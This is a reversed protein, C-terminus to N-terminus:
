QRLSNRLALADRLRYARISDNPDVDVPFDIRLVALSSANERVHEFVDPITLYDAWRVGGTTGCTAAEVRHLSRRLGVGRTCWTVQVTSATCFNPPTGTATSAPMTLTVSSSVGTPTIRCAQHVEARLRELALRAEEQARVRETLDVESRMASVFLTTSMGVVTGLIALVTLLETLGFGREDGTLARIRQRLTGTM